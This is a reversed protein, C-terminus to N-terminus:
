LTTPKQCVFLHCLITLATLVELVAAPFYLFVNRPPFDIPSPLMSSTVSCWSHLHLWADSGRLLLFNWLLSLSPLPLAIHSQPTPEPFIISSNPCVLDDMPMGMVCPFIHTQPEPSWNLIFIAIQADNSTIVSAMSM